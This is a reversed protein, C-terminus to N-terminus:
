AEIRTFFQLLRRKYERESVGNSANKIAEYEQLLKKDKQLIEFGKISNKGLPSAPDILLFEVSLGNRETVWEIFHFRKKTPEGFLTTLEPMYKQFDKPAADAVLDIDNQGVIGLAASGIFHVPLEPFKEKLTAVLEKGLRNAAPDYPHTTIYKNNPLTFSYLYAQPSQLLLMFDRRIQLLLKKM